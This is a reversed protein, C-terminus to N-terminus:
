HDILYFTVELLMTKKMEWVTSFEQKADTICPTLACQSIPGYVYCLVCTVLGGVDHVDLGVSHGLGHFYFARTLGLKLIEDQDGVLIGIRILEQCLVRIVLNQMETWM